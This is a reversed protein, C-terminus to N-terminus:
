VNVFNVFFRSDTLKTLTKARFRQCCQCKKQNKDIKDFVRNIKMQKRISISYFTSLIFSNRINTLTGQRKTPKGHQRM